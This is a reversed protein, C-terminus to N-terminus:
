NGVLNVDIASALEVNWVAKRVPTNVNIVGMLPFLTVMM